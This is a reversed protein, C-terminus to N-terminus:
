VSFQSQFKIEGILGDPEYIYVFNNVEFEWNYSQFALHQIIGGINHHNVDMYALSIHPVWNQPNYYESIGQGTNMLAKWVQQHFQVLQPSKVLPIFIVPHVGSFVGIGATTVKFPKTQKAITSLVLELAPLDYEEGIQWSFHPFPTVRIGKLGFQNELEDWLSEVKKYYPQPLLSVIGHM